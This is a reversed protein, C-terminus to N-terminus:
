NYQIYTNNIVSSLNAQPKIQNTRGNIRQYELNNLQKLEHEALVATGLGSINFPSEVRFQKLDCLPEQKIYNNTIRQTDTCQTDMTSFQSNYETEANLRELKLVKQLHKEAGHSISPKHYEKKYHQQEQNYKRIEFMSKNEKSYLHINHLGQLPKQEMEQIKREAKLSMPQIMTNQQAYNEWQVRKTWREFTKANALSKVQLFNLATFIHRCYLSSIQFFKCNCNIDYFSDNYNLDLQRCQIQYTVKDKSDNVHWVGDQLGKQQMGLSRDTEIKYQHSNMYEYLMLEFAYRTYTQYLQDLMPHNVHLMIENRQEGQIRDHLRQELDQFMQFIEVLTSRQHVRAKIQSNVAEIRSTTHTKALFITPAFASTWKEKILMLKQLYELNHSGILDVSQFVLNLTTEFVKQNEEYILGYVIYKYLLKAQGQHIRKLFLFRKKFNQQMHWQCLLHVSNKFAREIAGCMSADFDTLITTPEIGDNFRLLNELLWKYTELTERKVLAFGLVVNKGENNVGSFVTLALSHFNTKYTADMFVVDHYLRYNHRMLSTQIIMQSIENSHDAEDYEYAYRLNPDKLKISQEVYTQIDAQIHKNNINTKEKIDLEHTHHMIMRPSRVFKQKHERWKFKVMVPCNLNCDDRLQLGQDINKGISKFQRKTCALGFGIVQGELNRSRYGIKFQVKHWQGYNNYALLANDETTFESPFSVLNVFGEKKMTSLQQPHSQMPQPRHSSGYLFAPRNFEPIQDDGIQAPMNSNNNYNQTPYLDALSQINQTSNWLHSGRRNEINDFDQCKQIGPNKYNETKVPIIRALDALTIETNASSTSATSITQPLSQIVSLM